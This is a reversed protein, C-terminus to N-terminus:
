GEVYPITALCTHLGDTDRTKYGERGRDGIDLEQVEFVGLINSITSIATRFGQMLDYTKPHSPKSSSQYQASCASIRNKFSLALSSSCELSMM